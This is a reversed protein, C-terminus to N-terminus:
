AGCGVGWAKVRTGARPRGREQGVVRQTQRVQAHRARQVGGHGGRQVGGRAGAVRV